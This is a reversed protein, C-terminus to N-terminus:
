ELDSIKKKIYKEQEPSSSPSFGGRSLISAIAAKTSNERKADDSATELIAYVETFDRGYENCFKNTTEIKKEPLLSYFKEIGSKNSNLYEKFQNFIEVGKEGLKSKATKYVREKDVIFM